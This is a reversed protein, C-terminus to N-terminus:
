VGRKTDYTLIHLRPTMRYGKSLCYSFIPEMADIQDQRTAGLPMIFVTEKDIRHAAIFEDIAIMDRMRRALFKYAQVKDLNAQEFHWAGDIFKPSCVILADLAEPILVKGSTEYQISYGGSRLATHLESLGKNWHIFPEGGTIVVRSSPYSAVSRLIDELTTEHMDTLAYPTDCWPCLPEVCGGTRIFVAPLGIWPGEGQLSHFIECIKM